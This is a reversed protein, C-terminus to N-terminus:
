PSTGAQRCHYQRVSAIRSEAISRTRRGCPFGHVEVLDSRYGSRKRSGVTNRAARFESQLIEIRAVGPRQLVFVLRARLLRQLDALFRQRLQLALEVRV